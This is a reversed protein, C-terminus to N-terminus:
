NNELLLENLTVIKIGVEVAKRTKASTSINESILYKTNKTINNVLKFGKESLFEALGDRTYGNVKGTSCVEIAGIVQEKNSQMQKFKWDAFYDILYTNEELWSIVNEQAKQGLNAINLNRLDTCDVTLKEAAVAGILPIGFGQILLQMTMNEKALCIENYVKPGIKNGLCEVFDEQTTEFIDIISNFDLKTITAPGLGKIGVAKVFKELVKLTKEPCNPNNCYLVDNVVELESACSPCTDPPIIDTDGVSEEVGCIYPIVGGSRTILVTDNIRLDLNRIISINHLSAKSVTADEIEVPNVHGVPTLKGSGGVKWTVGVLTTEVIPVDTRNKHAVAGRPYSSTYGVSNYLSNDLLREVIGDKPINKLLNEDLVTYFGQIRLFALTDTYLPANEVGKADYAVFFIHEKKEIFKELEKLHLLGSVFNRTNEIVNSAVVEGVVFLEGRVKKPVSQMQKVKDTIDMGTTGNGRTLVLTLYGDTNYYISIAAGDLKPTEITNSSYAALPDSERDFIKKLSYLRHKHQLSNEINPLVEEKYLSDYVSDSILTTGKNYENDLITRDILKTM